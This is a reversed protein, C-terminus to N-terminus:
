IEIAEKPFFTKADPFKGAATVTVTSRIKASDVGGTNRVLSCLSHPTM